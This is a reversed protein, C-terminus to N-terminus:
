ASVQAPSAAHTLAESWVPTSVAQELGSGGFLIEHMSPDVTHLRTEWDAIDCFVPLSAPSDLYTIPELGRYREFPHGLRTQILDLVVLDLITVYWQVDPDSTALVNLGQYLALSILGNTAAGRYEAAVALTAVDWAKAPDVTADSRARADEFTTNWAHLDELSKLGVPSPQIVRMAGAPMLRDHDIVVLFVSSNEYRDYEDALMAPTNGFFELFVEREVARGVEATADRSPVVYLGFPTDSRGAARVLDRAMEDLDRADRLDIM